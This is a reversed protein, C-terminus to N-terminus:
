SDVFMEQLVISLSYDFGIKWNPDLFDISFAVDPDEFEVVIDPLDVHHIPDTQNVFVSEAPPHISSLSLLLFLSLCLLWSDLNISNLNGSSHDISDVWFYFWFQFILVFFVLINNFNLSLQKLKFKSYLASLTWALTESKFSEVTFWFDISIECVM